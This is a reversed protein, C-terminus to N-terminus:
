PGLDVPPDALWKGHGDVFAYNAGQGHREIVLQGVGEYFLVEEAQADKPLHDVKLGSVQENIDYSLRADTTDAPCKLVRENKVLPSISEHWRLVVPLRGDHGQAYLLAGLALQKINSLCRARRPAPCRNATFIPSLVALLVALMAIIVLWIFRGCGLLEWRRRQM